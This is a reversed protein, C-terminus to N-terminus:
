EIQIRGLTTLAPPRRLFNKAAIKPAKDVEAAWDLEEARDDRAEFKAAGVVLLVIPLLGTSLHSDQLPLPFCVQKAQWPRPLIVIGAYAAWAPVSSPQHAGHV